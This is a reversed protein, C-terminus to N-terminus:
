AYKHLIAEAQGLYGSGFLNLHNLVHYLNYLDVRGAAGSPLPWADDYASYFPEPLKGFLRTMALDAERLGFHAAPDVLAVQGDARGLVNGSWLDGHSLSPPQEPILDGLRQCLSEATRATRRPLLGRRAALTVQFGIRHEAFFSVGNDSWPNPQPTSGIYNDADFGHAPATTRHLTALAHGFRAWGDPSVPGPAFYEMAIIRDDAVLVAPVPPAGDVAGLAELGRAEEPFMDPPADPNSKVFVVRGDELELRAAQNISGGGVSQSAAIRAGLAAELHDRM